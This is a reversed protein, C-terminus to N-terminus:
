HIELKQNKKLIMKSLIVYSQKTTERRATVSPTHKTMVPYTSFM